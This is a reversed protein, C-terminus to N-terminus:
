PSVQKRDAAEIKWITHEDSAWVPRLLGQQTAAELTAFAPTWRDHWEPAQDPGIPQNAAFVFDFNEDQLYSVFAVANIQKTLGPVEKPQFWPTGIVSVGSLFLSRHEFLLLIRSDAALDSELFRAAEFYSQGTGDSIYEEWTFQGALTEWSGAYYGFARFPLSVFTALLLLSVTAKKAKSSLQLLGATACMALLLMAPTLFRAQQATLFWFSYMLWVAILMGGFSRFQRQHNAVMEAENMHVSLPSVEHRRSTHCKHYGWCSLLIMLLLQWGFSGDYLEDSFALLVPGSLFAPMSHLGFANASISHHFQSCAISSPEDTFISSFYPFIPNGTALYSRALFPASYTVVSLTLVSLEMMRPRGVKGEHVPLMGTRQNLCIGRFLIAVVPVMAATLKVALCAGSLVGIIASEAFTNSRLLTESSTLLNLIAVLNLIILTEVYCNQGILLFAKSCAVATALSAALGPTLGCSRLLRAFWCVSIFWFCWNLLRASILSEIPSIVWCLIECLSPFASYPLDTRVSHEGELLWFRPLVNHYVLEDWGSPYCLSPGLTILGIVALLVSGASAHRWAERFLDSRSSGCVVRILSSIVVVSGPVLLILPSTFHFLGALGLVVSALGILDLGLCTELLVRDARNGLRLPLKRVVFRGTGASAALLLAVGGIALPISDSDKLQSIVREM